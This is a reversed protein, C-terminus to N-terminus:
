FARIARVRYYSNKSYNTSYGYAFRYSWANTPSYETSTWYRGYTSAIYEQNFGATNPDGDNDLIEDILVDQSALLYMERNSPLYWDNYGGASFTDCLGAAHAGSAGAAKISASNTLGDTMSECNSVDIAFLGWQIGGGGDLDYLSAILGHQGEDYVYFVIGGGWLEGVYHGKQSIENDIIEIGM